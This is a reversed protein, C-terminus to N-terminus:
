QLQWFHRRPLMNCPSVSGTTGSGAMSSLSTSLSLHQVPASSSSSHFYRVKAFVVCLFTALVMVGDSAALALGDESILTAFSTGFPSGTEVWHRSLTRLAGVFVMLWFLVWFGRFPDQQSTTNHRDFHSIRNPTFHTRNSRRTRVKSASLGKIPVPRLTIQGTQSSYSSAVTDAGVHTFSSSTTHILPIFQSPSPLLPLDLFPLRVDPNNRGKWGGTSHHNDDDSSPQILALV